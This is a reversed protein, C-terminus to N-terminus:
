LLAPPIPRTRDTCGDLWGDLRGFNGGRGFEGGSHPQAHGGRVFCLPNYFSNAALRETVWRTGNPGSSRNVFNSGLIYNRSMKTIMKSIKINPGISCARGARDM